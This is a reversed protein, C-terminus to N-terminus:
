PRKRREGADSLDTENGHVPKGFAKLADLDYTHAVKLVRQEEQKTEDVLRLLLWQALRKLKAPMGLSLGMVRGHQSGLSTIENSSVFHDGISLTVDNEEFPNVSHAVHRHRLRLFFRHLEQLESPATALFAENLWQRKGEVFCRAYRIVAASSLADWEVFNLGKPERTALLDCIAVVDRLDHEIGRLSALRGAEAVPFLYSEFVQM